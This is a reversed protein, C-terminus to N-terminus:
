TGRDWKKSSERERTAAWCRSPTLPAQRSGSSKPSSMDGTVFHEESHCMGAAKWEVLVEGAGPPSIEIAEVSWDQGVGWLVAATSKM